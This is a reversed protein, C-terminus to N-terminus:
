GYSGVTSESVSWTFSNKLLAALLGAVAGQVLVLASKEKQIPMFSM